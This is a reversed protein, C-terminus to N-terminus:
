SSVLQRGRVLWEIAKSALSVSTSPSLMSPRAPKSHFEPLRSAARPNGIVKTSIPGLLAQEFFFKSGEFYDVPIVTPGDDSKISRIAIM